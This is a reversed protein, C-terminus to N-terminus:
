VSRLAGCVASAPNWCVVPAHMKRYFILYIILFFMFFNVPLQVLVLLIGVLTFHMSSITIKIVAHSVKGKLKSHIYTLILRPIKVLTIIFSGKAVTGLHYRFTRVMASLVPTAPLQSKNRWDILAFLFLRLWTAQFSLSNLLIQCSLSSSPIETFSCPTFASFGWVATDNMLLQCLWM